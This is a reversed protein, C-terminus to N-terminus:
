EYGDEVCCGTTARFNLGVVGGNLLVAALSLLAFRPQGHVLSDLQHSCVSRKNSRCWFLPWLVTVTVELDAASLRVWLHDKEAGAPWVEPPWTSVSPRPSGPEM